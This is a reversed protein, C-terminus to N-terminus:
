PYMLTSESINLGDQIPFSKYLSVGQEVGKNLHVNPIEVCYSYLCSSLFKYVCLGYPVTFLAFLNSTYPVIKLRRDNRLHSRNQSVKFVETVNVDYIRDLKWLPPQPPTPVTSNQLERGIPLKLQDNIM